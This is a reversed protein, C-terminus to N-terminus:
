CYPRELTRLSHVLGSGVQEDGGLPARFGTGIDFGSVTVVMILVLLTLYLLIRCGHNANANTATNYNVYFLGHNLNQSYNGGAYLCPNSANFNWNDCSYSRVYIGVARVPFGSIYLDILDNNLLLMM